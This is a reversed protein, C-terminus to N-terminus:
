DGCPPEEDQILGTIVPKYKPNHKVRKDWLRILFYVVAMMILGTSVAFLEHNMAPDLRGALALGILIGALLAAVPVLYLMFSIFLIQRDDTEMIVRQGSQAQIPNLAEVTLDRRGSGSLIGCKGCNECTLHRQLNVTATDDSTDIVLGFQEM